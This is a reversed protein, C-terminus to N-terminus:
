TKTIKLVAIKLQGNTFVQLDEIDYYECCRNIREELKRSDFDELIIVKKIM